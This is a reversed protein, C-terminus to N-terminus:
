DKTLSLFVKLISADEIQKVRQKTINMLEGVTEFTRFINDTLGYRLDLVKYHSASLLRKCDITLFVDKYAIMKSRNINFQKEIIENINFGDKMAKILVAKNIKYKNLFDDISLDSGDKDTISNTKLFYNYIPRGEIHGCSKSRGSVLNNTLINKQNGCSCSCLCWSHGKNVRKELITFNGFKMGAVIKQKIEPQPM